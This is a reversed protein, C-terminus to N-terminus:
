EWHDSIQKLLQGRPANAGARTRLPFFDMNLQSLTPPRLWPLTSRVSLTGMLRETPEGLRLLRTGPSRCPAVVGTHTTPSQASSGARWRAFIRPAPGHRHAARMSRPQTLNLRIQLLHVHRAQHRGSCHGSPYRLDVSMLSLSVDTILNTIISITFWLHLIKLSIGNFIKFM